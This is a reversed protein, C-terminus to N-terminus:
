RSRRRLPIVNGVTAPAASTPLTTPQGARNAQRRAQEATCTAAHPMYLREFTDIGNDATPVRARLTGHQDTYCAFNGAPDPHPNLAIHNKTKPNWGFIVESGCGSRCPRRRPSPM